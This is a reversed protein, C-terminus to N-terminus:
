CQVIKTFSAKADNPRDTWIEFSWYGIALTCIDEVDHIDEGFSRNWKSLVRMRPILGGREVKVVVGGHALTQDSKARWIVVDGVFIDDKYRAPDVPRYEELLVAMVAADDYIGTRRSAFLLGFCNYSGWPGRRHEWNKHKRREIQYIEHQEFPLECVWLENEIYKGGQTYLQISKPKTVDAEKPLEIAM